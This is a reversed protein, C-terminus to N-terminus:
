LSFMIAMTTLFGWSGALAGLSSGLMTCLLTKGLSFEEVEKPEGTEGVMDLSYIQTDQGMKVPIVLTFPSSDMQVARASEITQYSRDGDYIPIKAYEGDVYSYAFLVSHAKAGPSVYTTSQHSLLESNSIRYSNSSADILEAQEWEISIRERALNTVTVEINDQNVVCDIAIQQNQFSGDATIAAEGGESPSEVADIVYAVTPLYRTTTCSAFATCIAALLLIRFSKKM